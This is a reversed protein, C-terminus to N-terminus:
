EADEKSRLCPKLMFRCSVWLKPVCISAKVELWSQSDLTKEHHSREIQLRCNLSIREEESWNEGLMKIVFVQYIFAEDKRVGLVTVEYIRSDPNCGLSQHEIDEFCFRYIHFLNTM